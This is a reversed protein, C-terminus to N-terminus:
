SIKETNDITYYLNIYRLNHANNFMNKNTDSNTGIEFHSIDLVKLNTCGSFISRFNTVKGTNFNSLDLLQISSCGYFMSSMDTVLSTDFSSLYVSTLKTSSYFMRSM